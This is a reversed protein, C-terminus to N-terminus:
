QQEAQANIWAPRQKNLFADLGNKAEQGQRLDAIHQATKSRLADDLDHTAVMEILQKSATQATPGGLLLAKVLTMVTEDLQDLECVEHALGIQKAQQASIREATLFYRSAQRAGIARIVYPSITSPALGLRVESTAFQADHSAVCLDCASALGMGGGLALGQVRAITPQKLAALQHLMQALKMADAQNEQNSAQGAQKMWNLDAGASFSKGRGALIVVRVDDRQDLHEFCAQLEAIVQANFANHLEARNIWITAVQANCELQLYEFNM